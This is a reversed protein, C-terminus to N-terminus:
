RRQLTAGVYVSRAFISRVPTREAYDASYRWAQV